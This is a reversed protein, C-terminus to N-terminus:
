HKPSPLTPPKSPAEGSELLRQMFQTEERLLEVARNLDDVEDELVAVKDSLEKLHPSGLRRELAGRLAPSDMVIALIPILLAVILILFGIVWIM